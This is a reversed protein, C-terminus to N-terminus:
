GEQGLAELLRYYGKVARPITGTRIFENPAHLRTDPDGFSYYLFWTGLISSFLEAVPVTGGMRVTPAPKGYLEELVRAAVELTPHDAPMAYPRASGPFRQFEVRVGPVQHKKVHAEILDLIQDPDQDPVLRCTIKAHAESPLVTKTGKGQFGGWMGNVELTPRAGIRELTSYGPEGFAAELGIERLWAEEDFPIAALDAREKESLPRVRDYFGSVAVRGDPTHFSAVIQALVHLPNAVAGGYSGSHLDQNPGYVDIQCAALGRSAITLCGQDPSLMSGDAGLVVDCKLLERNEELFAGLNPSGIEEEGELLFKVNVPPAGKLDRLAEVGKIAEFLCGKDDTAGRAYLKGDREEPEFPPSEWLEIPDVPQVDYHGYILYTPKAPDVVWEGYVVPHGEGGQLPFIEVKPVGARRLADAVWAAAREIDERHEPLASISPIRLFEKLEEVYRERREELYRDLDAM